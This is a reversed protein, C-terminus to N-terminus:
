KAANASVVSCLFYFHLDIEAAVPSGDGLRTDLLADVADESRTPLQAAYAANVAADHAPDGTYAPVILFVHWLPSFEGHGPWGPMSDLVHDHFDTFDIGNGQHDCPNCQPASLGLSQWGIPYVVQYFDAQAQEPAGNSVEIVNITVTQGGFYAPEYQPPSAGAATSTMFTAFFIATAILASRRFMSM